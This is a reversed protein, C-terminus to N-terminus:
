NELYTPVYLTGPPPDDLTLRDAGWLQRTYSSGWYKDFHWQLIKSLAHSLTIDDVICAIRLIVANYASSNYRAYSRRNDDSIDPMAIESLPSAPFAPKGDLYPRLNPRPQCCEAFYEGNLSEYGRAQADLHGCERYFARHAGCFPSACQRLLATKNWGLRLAQLYKDNWTDSSAYICSLPLTIPQSDLPHAM